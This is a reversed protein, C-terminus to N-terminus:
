RNSAAELKHQRGLLQKRTASISLLPLLRGTVHDHQAFVAPLGTVRLECFVVKNDTYAKLLNAKKPPAAFNGACIHMSQQQLGLVASAAVDATM